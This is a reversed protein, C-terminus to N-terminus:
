GLFCCTIRVRHDLLNNSFTKNTVSSKIYKCSLIFEYRAEEFM